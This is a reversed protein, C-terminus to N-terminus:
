GPLAPRDFERLQREVEDFPLARRSIRFFNEALMVTASHSARARHVEMGLRRPWFPVDLGVRVPTATDAELGQRLRTFGKGDPLERGAQEVERVAPEILACLRDLALPKVFRENLRDGITS